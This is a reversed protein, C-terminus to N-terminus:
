VNKAEENFPLGTRADLLTRGNTILGDPSVGMLSAMTAAVDNVHIPRTTGQVAYGAAVGWTGSYVSPAPMGAKVINGILSMRPIAGSILTANSGQPGHDSGSGDKRPCRGFESAIHILTKNFRNQNKLVQVFEGLCGLLGRYYCTTFVTSPIRGIFHQDNPLAYSAGNVKLGSLGGAGITISSTLDNGLLLEAAAFQEALGAIMPATTGVGAFADRLDGDSTKATQSISCQDSGDAKIVQPFLAKVNGVDFAEALPGRYKALAESWGDSIQYVQGEILAAANDYASRLASDTVGVAQAYRDFAMQTQERMRAWDGTQFAAGTPFSKFPNLLVQMPNSGSPLSVAALSKRTKFASGSPVLSVLGPLPKKSADAVIGSISLGGLIPAVQRVNSLDHIGFENDMGRILAAHDLIERFERGNYGLEWVPPLAYTKGGSTYNVYRNMSHATTGVVDLWNGFGGDVFESASNRPNLVLDFYWRPVAGFLSLHVYQWEDAYKSATVGLAEAMSKNLFSGAIRDIMSTGIGLAGLGSAAKVLFHRRSHNIASM